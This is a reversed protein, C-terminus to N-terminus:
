KWIIGLGASAPSLSPNTIPQGPLSHPRCHKRSEFSVRVTWFSTPLWKTKFPYPSVSPELQGLILDLRYVLIDLRPQLACRLTTCSYILLGATTMNTGFAYRLISSAGALYLLDLTSRPTRRGLFGAPGCEVAEKGTGLPGGRVVGQKPCIV